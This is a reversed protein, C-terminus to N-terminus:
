NFHSNSQSLAIDTQGKFSRCPSDSSNHVSHTIKAQLFCYYLFNPPPLSTDPCFLFPTQNRFCVWCDKGRAGERFKRGLGPLIVSEAALKSPCDAEHVDTHECAVIISVDWLSHNTESENNTSPQWPKINENNTHTHKNKEEVPAICHFGSKRHWLEKLPLEPEWGTRFKTLVTRSYSCLLNM